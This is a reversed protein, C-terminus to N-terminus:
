SYNARRFGGFRLLITSHNIEDKIFVSFSMIHNLVVKGGPRPSLTLQM